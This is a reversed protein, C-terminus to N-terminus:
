SRRMDTSRTCSFVRMFTFVFQEGYRNEFYGYYLRPDATNRLHPPRGRRPDDNDNAAFVVGADGPDEGEPDGMLTPGEWCDSRHVSPNMASRSGRVQRFEKPMREPELETTFPEGARISTSSPV